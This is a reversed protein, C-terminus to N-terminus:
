YAAGCRAGVPSSRFGTTARSVARSAPGHSPWGGSDPGAGATMPTSAAVGSALRGAASGFLGDDAGRGSLGRGGFGVSGSGIRDPESVPSTFVELMRDADGAGVQPYRSQGQRHMWQATVVPQSAPRRRRGTAAYLGILLLLVVFLAASIEGDRKLQSGIGQTASVAPIAAPALLPQAGAGARSGPPMALMAAAAIARDANVTGYGSGDARGGAPHYVTSTIIARRVQDVSLGPYRARILAAVGSVVASAASTSNITRYGGSSAAATMGAGAATVTVYRQHSSWPAKTFASDFAGVAIVGPYAAPYNPSDSSAGDDGAPAVLVVNHALAYSVATKEAASGGAAAATGGTGSSGAEGPDIPLDIVRAGHSVAYKIGAAIANPIAAAVSSQSLEPDDAPLTVAISLIRAAPAVGLIGSSGASGHGRGAILSAIPTGQEGFYQGAAHPAGALAPAATVAGTLDAHKADVGDSLVAVTVGAGQTAAWAGTVDLKRLWWEKQRVQDAHAAPMGSLGITVAATGTAILAM